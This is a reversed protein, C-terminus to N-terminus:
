SYYPTLPTMTMTVYAIVDMHGSTAFVQWDLSAKSSGPGRDDVPDENSGLQALHPGQTQLRVGLVEPASVLRGSSSMLKTSGTAAKGTIRYVGYCKCFKKKM